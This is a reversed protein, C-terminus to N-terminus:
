LEIAVVADALETRRDFEGISGQFLQLRMANKSRFNFEDNDPHLLYRADKLPGADIDVGTLTCLWPM